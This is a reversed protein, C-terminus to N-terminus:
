RRDNHGKRRDAARVSARSREMMNGGSTAARCGKASKQSSWRNSGDDIALKPLDQGKVTWTPRQVICRSVRGPTAQLFVFTLSQFMETPWMGASLVETVLQVKDPFLIKV